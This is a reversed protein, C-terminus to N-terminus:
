GGTVMNNHYSRVVINALETGCLSLEARLRPIPLTPLHHSSLPICALPSRLCPPLHDAFAYADQSAAGQPAWTSALSRAAPCFPPSSECPPSRCELVTIVTLTPVQTSLTSLTAVLHAADTIPDAAQSDCFLTVPHKGCTTPMMAVCEKSIVEARPSTLRKASSCFHPLAPHELPLILTDPRSHPARYLCLPTSHLTGPHRLYTLTPREWSTDSHRHTYGREPSLPTPMTARPAFCRRLTPLQHPTSSALRGTASNRKMSYFFSDLFPGAHRSWFQDRRALGFITGGPSVM